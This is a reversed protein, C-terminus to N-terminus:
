QYNVKYIKVGYNEYINEFNINQNEFKKLDNVTFIYKVDLEKLKNASLYIKFADPYLLEFKTEENDVLDITIHAYRNYIDKYEGNPDLKEWREMNPYVNTSNITPAGYMITYNFMPYEMGEVIWLGPEKEEIKEIEKGVPQEEIVDIGKRVPNVLFSMFMMIITIISISIKKIKDNNIELIAFYLALLALVGLAIKIIGYYKQFCYVSIAM